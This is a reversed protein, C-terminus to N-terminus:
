EARAKKKEGDELIDLIRDLRGDLAQIQDKFHEQNNAMVDLKRNITVVEGKLAGTETKIESM